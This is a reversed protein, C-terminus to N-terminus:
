QEQWKSWGNMVISYSVVNPRVDTDGAMYSEEMKRLIAEGRAASGPEDSQVWANIVTNFSRDNPKADKNGQIYATEM